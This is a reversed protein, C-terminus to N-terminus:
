VTSYQATSCLCSYQRTNYLPNKHKPTLDPGRVVLDTSMCTAGLMLWMYSTPCPAKLDSQTDYYVSWFCEERPEQKANAQNADM